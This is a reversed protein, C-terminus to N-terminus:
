EKEAERKKVPINGQPCHIWNWLWGASVLHLEGCRPCRKIVIFKGTRLAKKALDLPVRGGDGYVVYESL